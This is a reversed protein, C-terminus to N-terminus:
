LRKDKERYNLNDVAMQIEEKSLMRFDTRYKKQNHNAKILAYIQYREVQTLRKYNILLKRQRSFLSSYCNVM